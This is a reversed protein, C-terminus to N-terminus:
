VHSQEKLIARVMGRTILILENRWERVNPREITLDYIEGVIENRIQDDNQGSQSLEAARKKLNIYRRAVIPTMGATTIVELLSAYELTTFESSDFGLRDIESKPDLGDPM